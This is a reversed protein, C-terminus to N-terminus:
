PPRVGRARGSIPRWRPRQAPAYLPNAAGPIGRAVPSTAQAVFLVGRASAWLGTSYPRVRFVGSRDEITKLIRDSHEARVKATPM